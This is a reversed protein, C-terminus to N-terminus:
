LAIIAAAAPRDRGPPAWRRPASLDGPPLLSRVWDREADIFIVAHATFDIVGADRASPQPVITVSGDAPPFRGAAAASLVDALSTPGTAPVLLTGM